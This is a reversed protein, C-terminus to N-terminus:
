REEFLSHFPFPKKNANDNVRLVGIEVPRRLPMNRNIMYNPSHSRGVVITGIVGVEKLPDQGPGLAKFVRLLFMPELVHMVNTPLDDKSSGTEAVDIVPTLNEKASIM